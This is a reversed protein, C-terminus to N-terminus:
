VVRRRQRQWRKVSVWLGTVVLVTGGLSLLGWLFQAVNGYAGFTHLRGFNRRYLAVLGKSKVSGDNRALEEGTYPNIYLQINNNKGDSFFFAHASTTHNSPQLGTWRVDAMLSLATEVMADIPLKEAGAPASVTPRPIESPTDQINDLLPWIHRGWTYTFGTIAMIILPIMAVLGLANHWDLAQGRKWARVFTRERLPWWLVLGIICTIALVLSSIAAIQQGIRGAAMHRHIDILIHSISFGGSLRSVEGTYPNLYVRGGQGGEPSINTTYASYAHEPSKPIGLHNVRLPPNATQYAELVEAVTLPNETVELQYLDQHEWQFIGGEFILIGGTLCVLAIPVGAIWGIWFHLHFWITRKTAESGATPSNGSPNNM